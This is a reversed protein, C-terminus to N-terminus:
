LSYARIPDPIPEADLYDIQERDEFDAESSVASGLPSKSPAESM